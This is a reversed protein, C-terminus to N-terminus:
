SEPISKSKEAAEEKVKGELVLNSLLNINNHFNKNTEGIKRSKEYKRARIQAQWVKCTGGSRRILKMQVRNLVIKLDSM